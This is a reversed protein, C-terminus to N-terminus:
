ICRQAGEMSKFVVYACKIEGETVSPDVSKYDRVLIMVSIKLAEIQEEYQQRKKPDKTRSQQIRLAQGKKAAQEILMLNRYNVFKKQGFHVNVIEKADEQSDQLETLVQKEGSVVKGLHTALQAKLQNLTSYTFQAPLNKIRVAFDTM